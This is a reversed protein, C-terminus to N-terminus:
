ADPNAFPNNDRLLDGSADMKLSDKFRTQNKIKKIESIFSIILHRQVMMWRVM